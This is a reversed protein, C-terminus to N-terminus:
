KCLIFIKRNKDNSIWEKIYGTPATYIIVRVGYYQLMTICSKCPRALAPKGDAFERYIFVTGKVKNLGITKNFLGFEAHNQNLFRYWTKIKPDTKTTNGSITISGKRELLAAGVRIKHTSKLMGVRALRLGFPLKKPEPRMKNLHNKM